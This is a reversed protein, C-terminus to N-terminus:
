KDMNKKFFGQLLAERVLSAVNKVGFKLLLHQRHNEVTRFSIFLKESIEHTTLGEVLLQLVDCERPTINVESLEKKDDLLAQTALLPQIFKAGDYVTHIATLLTQSDTDKSLYGKCGGLMASRIASPLVVVTLVIISISPYENTIIPILERGDIDPLLLDLLLIDAQRISLGTLLAQGNIYRGVVLIEEDYNLSDVIGSIILPHDDAIM